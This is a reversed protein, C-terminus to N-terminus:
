RKKIIKKTLKPSKLLNQFFILLDLIAFGLHAGNLFM